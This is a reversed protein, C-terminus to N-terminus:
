GLYIIVFGIGRAHAMELNGVKGVVGKKKTSVRLFIGPFQETAISLESFFVLHLNSFKCLDIDNM